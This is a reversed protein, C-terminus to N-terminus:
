QMFSFGDDSSIEFGAWKGWRDHASSGPQEMIELSMVVQLLDHVVLVHPARLELSEEVLEAADEDHGVM